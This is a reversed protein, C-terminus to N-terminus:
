FKKESKSKKAKQFIFIFVFYNLFKIIFHFIVLFTLVLRTKSKVLIVDYLRCYGM